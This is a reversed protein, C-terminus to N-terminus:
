INLTKSEANFGDIQTQIVKVHKQIKEIYNHAKMGPTVYKVGAGIEKMAANFLRQLKFTENEMKEVMKVLDQIIKKQEKKKEADLSSQNLKQNYEMLENKVKLQARKAENLSNM